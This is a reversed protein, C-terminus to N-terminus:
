RLFALSFVGIFNPNDEIPRWRTDPWRNLEALSVARLGNDEQSPAAGNHYVVRKGTWLMLHQAQGQDFFLMDAARALRPDRSAFVSNEQILGIANVFAGESGDPRRWRYRLKQREEESALDPPLPGHMGMARRWRGDHTALAEAVAFRVLGACDRQRWKPTPGSIVQAEAIRVIWARLARSEEANFRFSNEQRASTAPVAVPLASSFSPFALSFLMGALGALVHRRNCRNFRAEGPLAPNHGSTQKM